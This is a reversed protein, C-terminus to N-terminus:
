SVRSYFMVNPPFFISAGLGQGCCHGYATGRVFRKANTSVTRTRLSVISLLAFAGLYVYDICMTM